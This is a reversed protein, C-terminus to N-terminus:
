AVVYSIGPFRLLRVFSSDFVVGARTHTLFHEIGPISGVSKISKTPPPPRVGIGDLDVRCQAENIAPIRLTFMSACMSAPCVLKTNLRKCM